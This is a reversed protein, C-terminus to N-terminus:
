YNSPPEFTFDEFDIIEKSQSQSHKVVLIKIIHSTLSEIAPVYQARLLDLTTLEDQIPM